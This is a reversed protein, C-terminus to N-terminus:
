LRYHKMMEEDADICKLINEKSIVKDGNRSIWDVSRDKWHCYVCWDSAWGKIAVWRLNDGYRYNTMFLGDESNPLVGTMFVIGNPVNKFEEFTM